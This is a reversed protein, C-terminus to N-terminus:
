SRIIKQTTPQSGYIKMKDRNKVAAKIQLRTYYEEVRHALKKPKIAALVLSRDVVQGLVAQKMEEAFRNLEVHDSDAFVGDAM